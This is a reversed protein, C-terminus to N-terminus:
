KNNKYYETKIDRARQRANPKGDFFCCYKEFIVELPEFVKIGDIFVENTNPNHEINKILHANFEIMHQIHKNSDYPELLANFLPLETNM